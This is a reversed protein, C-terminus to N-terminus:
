SLVSTIVFSLFDLEYLHGTTQADTLGTKRTKKNTHNETALESVDQFTKFLKM